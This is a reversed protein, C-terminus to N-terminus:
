IGNELTYRSLILGVVRTALGTGRVMTTCQLVGNIHSSWVQTLCLQKPDLYKELGSRAQRIYQFSYFIILLHLGWRRTERNAWKRWVLDVSCLFPHSDLVLVYKILTQLLGPHSTDRERERRGSRLVSTAPGSSACAPDACHPFRGWRSRRHPCLRMWVPRSSWSIGPSRDWTWFPQSPLVTKM